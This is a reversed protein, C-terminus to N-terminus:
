IQQKTKQREMARNFSSTRNRLAKTLNEGRRAFEELQETTVNQKLLAHILTNRDEKWCLIDNLLPGSFYRHGVSKKERAFDMIYRIKSDISPRNGRQKKLYAEWKDAHRLISETRDEIISYEIFVAELFFKSSLARKLRIFQESYNLHKKANESLQLEEPM